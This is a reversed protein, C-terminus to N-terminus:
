EMSEPDVLTYLVPSVGAGWWPIGQDDIVRYSLDNLNVQIVAGTEDFAYLAGRWGALGYISSYGQLFLLDDSLLISTPNILMILNHPEGSRKVSAFTGVDEISFADGSSTDRLSYRGIDRAEFPADPETSTLNYWTGNQTIGVLQDLPEDLLAGPIFTLGNFVQDPLLGQVRCTGEQPHCIYIRTFSVAWLIGARNIAIDTIAEEESVDEFIFPAVPVLRDSKIDLAYLEGATHAYITDPRGRGPWEPDTPEPDWGDPVGDGDEDPECADGQEDHDFDSQDPNFLEVCNDFQDEVGDEDRDPGSLRDMEGGPTPDPELLAGGSSEDGASAGGAEWIPTGATSEQGGNHSRGVHPHEAPSVGAEDALDDGGFESSRTQDLTPIDEDIPQECATTFTFTVLSIFTTVCISAWHHSTWELPPSLRNSRIFISSLLRM